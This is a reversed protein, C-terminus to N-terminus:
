EVYHALKRRLEDRARSLRSKVTGVPLNLDRAIDRVEMGEMHHLVIMTRNDDSLSNVARHVAGQLDKRQFLLEPNSSWDEIERQVEGDALQITEDLSDGKITRGKKRFFDRCINITITRLWSFFTVDHRLSHMSKFVRIFVDQTLDAADQEDGVMRYVLNYVRKQYTNFLEEFAAIDGNRTRRVLEAEPIGVTISESM